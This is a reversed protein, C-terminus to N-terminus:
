EEALMQELTQRMQQEGPTGQWNMEGQWWRRLFGEKDILYVTPWKTNAWQNWNSSKLDLLVPYELQDQKMAAAVRQPDREASTEPRQIGIVVLGKDAYDRYWANYHPLNRQCNICQFAYFHVAVVKGKLNALTTPEGQLWTVGESMLEPAMPETRKIKSFDFPTGTLTGITLRQQKTLADGYLKREDEELEALEASAAAADLKGSNLQQQLELAKRDTEVFEDLLKQRLSDRMQLAEVVHPQTIMRTGLAQVTLESLRKRQDPDLTQDLRSQLRATLMRVQESQRDVPLNRSRFWVGDVDRLVDMVSDVQQESLKLEQHVADDRIMKLLVPPTQPMATPTADQASAPQTCIVSSFALAFCALAIKM